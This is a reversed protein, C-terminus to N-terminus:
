FSDYDLFGQKRMKMLNKPNIESVGGRFLYDAFSFSMIVGNSTKNYEYPEHHHQFHRQTQLRGIPSRIFWRMFATTASEKIKLDHSNLHMYRHSYLSQTIFFSLSITSFLWFTPSALFVALVTNAVFFPAGTIHMSVMGVITGDVGYGDRIICYIVRAVDENYDKADIEKLKVRNDVLEQAKKKLYKNVNDYCQNNTFNKRFDRTMKFHHVRHALNIEETFHVIYTFPIWKRLTAPCTHGIGLHVIYENVSAGIMGFVLGTVIEAGHSILLAAATLVSLWVLTDFNYLPHAKTREWLNKLSCFIKESRESLFFANDYIVKAEDGADKLLSSPLYDHATLAKKTHLQKAFLRCKIQILSQQNKELNKFLRSKKLFILASFAIINQKLQSQKFHLEQLWQSLRWSDLSELRAYAGLEFVDETQLFDQQSRKEQNIAKATGRNIAVNTGMINQPKVRLSGEFSYSIELM